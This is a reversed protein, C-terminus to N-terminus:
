HLPYHYKLYFYKTKQPATYPPTALPATPSPSLPHPPQFVTITYIRIIHLYQNFIQQFIGYTIYGPHDFTATASHKQHFKGIQLFPATFMEPNRTTVVARHAIALVHNHLIDRCVVCILM